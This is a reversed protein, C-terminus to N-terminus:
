EDLKRIEFVRAAELKRRWKVLKRLVYGDTRERVEQLYGRTVFEEM